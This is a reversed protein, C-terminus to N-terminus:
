APAHTESDKINQKNEQNLEPVNDQLWQWSIINVLEQFTKNRKAAEIKLHMILKPSMRVGTQKMESETM